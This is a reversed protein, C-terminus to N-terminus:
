LHLADGDVIPVADCLHIDSDPISRTRCCSPKPCECFVSSWSSPFLSQLLTRSRGLDPDGADACKKRREGATAREDMDNRASTAAEHLVELTRLSTESPTESVHALEPM